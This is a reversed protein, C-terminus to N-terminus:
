KNNLKTEIEENKEQMYKMFAKKKYKWIYLWTLIMIWTIIYWFYKVIVEYYEAFFVWLIVMTIARIISGITNYIWFIKKDMKMTWAIFPVFARALNLFKWLIISTAWWKKIWKKLYKIETEWIWFWLWYKKFFSEWYYRWLIYGIWNSIIAWISAIVISYVLNITSIKWFFWWVIILINQGPVVVWLVPFWEMLGSLFIILYNWYWMIEVLWEIWKIFEIFLEPKFLALIALWFTLFILIKMLIDIIKGLM